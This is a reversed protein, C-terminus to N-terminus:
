ALENCKHHSTNSDRGVPILDGYILGKLMINALKAPALAPIEAQHMGQQANSGLLRTGLFGAEGM